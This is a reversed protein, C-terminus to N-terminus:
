MVAGVERYSTRYRVQYWYMVYPEVLLHTSTGTGVTDISYCYVLLSHVTGTRWPSEM